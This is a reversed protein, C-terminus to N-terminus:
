LPFFTKGVFIKKTEVVSQMGIDRMHRLFLLTIVACCMYALDKGYSVSCLSRTSQRHSIFTIQRYIDYRCSDGAFYRKAEDADEKRNLPLVFPSRYALAAAITLAPNVCQFIAGILLM